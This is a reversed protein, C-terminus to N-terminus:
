FEYNTQTNWSRENHNGEFSQVTRSGDLSQYYSFMHRTFAVLYLKVLRQDIQFLLINRTFTNKLDQYLQWTGTRNELRNELFVKRTEVEMDVVVVSDPPQILDPLDAEELAVEQVLLVAAGIEDLFVSIRLM